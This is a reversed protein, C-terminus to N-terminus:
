HNNLLRSTCIILNLPFPYIGINKSPVNLGMLQKIMDKSNARNAILYYANPYNAVAKQPSCIENGMCLSGWKDNDNDCICVINSIGNINLFFSAYKGIKGVGFIVVQNQSAMLSLFDYYSKFETEAKEYIYREFYKQNELLMELEMWMEDSFDERLLLGKRYSFSLLNWYHQLVSHMNPNDYYAGRLLSNLCIIAISRSVMRLRAYDEPFVNMVWDMIFQCEQLDYQLGKPSNMSSAANDRRYHYFASHIFVGRQVLLAVQYRFGADQYAAGQTENLRINKEQVFKRKYIGNWMFTDIPVLQDTYDTYSVLKKSISSPRFLDHKITQRGKDPFDTFLFFDSKVFDANNEIATNYLTQFMGPDIYDDTEVIGLYEGKAVDFGWNVQYGYSKRDSDLVIIRSDRSAYEQLIERTGDTSGADVCIIEIDQLTQDIVSDMCEKIYTVVNLSPMIISVKPM